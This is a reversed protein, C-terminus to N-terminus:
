KYFEYVSSKEQWVKTFRNREFRLGSATSTTLLGVGCALPEYGLRWHSAAGLWGRLNQLMTTVM